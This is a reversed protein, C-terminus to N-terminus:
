FARGGRSGDPQGLRDWIEILQRAVTLGFYPSAEPSTLFDGSRGPGLREQQYYGHQPHYLALAMFQAFTIAGDPSQRIAAQIIESLPSPQEPPVTNTM